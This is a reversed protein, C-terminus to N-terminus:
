AALTKVQLVGGVLAAGGLGKTPILVRVCLVRSVSEDKRRTFPSVRPHYPQHFISILPSWGKEVLLTATFVRV